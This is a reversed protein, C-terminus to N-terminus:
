SGPNNTSTSHSPPLFTSGSFMNPWGSTGNDGWISNSRGHSAMSNSNATASPWPSPKDLSLPLPQWPSGGLGVPAMQSSQRRAPREVVEDDGGGLASSGLLKGVTPASSAQDPTTNVSPRSIPTPAVLPTRGVVGFGVPRASTSTTASPGALLSDEGLNLGGVGGTLSGIPSQSQMKGGFFGDDMSNSEFASRTMSPPSKALGYNGFPTQANQAGNPILGPPPVAMRPGQQRIDVPSQVQQQQQQQQYFPPRPTSGNLLAQPAKPADQVQKDKNPTQNGRMLYPPAASTLPPSRLPLLGPVSTATPSPSSTSTEPNQFPRQFQTRQAQAAAQAQAQAQQQRIQEMRAQQVQVQAQAQAQAQFQAQAQAQAQAQKQVEEEQAREAIAKQEAEYAAAREKKRELKAAKAREQEDKEAKLKDEREKKKRDKEAEREKHIEQQRQREAERRRKEEEKAQREAERRQREAEQRRRAAEQAAEQKAKKAAEEEALHAKKAADAEEKQQRQLRKKDKKRQNEKAKKAEKDAAVKDEEELERLLQLQREQAM